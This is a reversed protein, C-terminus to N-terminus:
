REAQETGDAFWNIWFCPHPIVFIDAAPTTRNDIRPPLGFCSRDHNSGQRACNCRFRAACCKWEKSDIWSNNILFPPFDSRIYAALQDNAPGPRRHQASNVAVLDTISLLIPAFKFAIIEGAVARPAIFVAIKPDNPADIIDEIHRPVPEPCRFVFARRDIMRVTALRCHNASGM